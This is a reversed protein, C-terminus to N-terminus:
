GAAAAKKLAAMYNNIDPETGELQANWLVEALCELMQHEAAHADGLRGTLQRHIKVIGPPLNVDLQERVAIHMAMHLFPNSQGDSGDYDRHRAAGSEIDRHYEPHMGVVEAIMLAQKDQPRGAQRDAWANIFMDRLASRDQGWLM